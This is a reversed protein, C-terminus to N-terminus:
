PVYSCPPSPDNCTLWDLAFLAFDEFDVVCDKNLDSTVIPHNEDGCQPPAAGVQSFEINDIAINPASSLASSTYVTLVLQTSSM